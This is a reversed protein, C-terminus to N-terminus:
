DQRLQARLRSGAAALIGQTVSFLLVAGVNGLPQSLEETILHELGIGAATGCAAGLLAGAVSPGTGRMRGAAVTGVTAGAIGMIGTVGLRRLTCVVDDDSPCDDPRAVALGVVLGLAAGLTGGLAETAFAAAGTVRPSTMDQARAPLAALVVAVAVIGISRRIHTM